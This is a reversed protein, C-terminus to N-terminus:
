DSPMDTVSKASAIPTDALVTLRQSIFGARVPCRVGDSCDLRSM